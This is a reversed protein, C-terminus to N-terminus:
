IPARGLIAVREPPAACKPTSDLSCGKQSPGPRTPWLRERGAARSARSTGLPASLSNAVGRGQVSPRVAPPVPQTQPPTSTWAASRIPSQGRCRLLRSFALRANPPLAPGSGRASISGRKTVQRGPPSSAVSAWAPSHRALWLGATVGRARRELTGWGPQARAGRRRRPTTSAWGGVRSRGTGRRRRAGVSTFLAFRPRTM